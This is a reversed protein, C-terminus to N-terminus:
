GMQGLLLELAVLPAGTGVFVGIATQPAGMCWLRNLLGMRPLAERAYRERLENAAEIARELQRPSPPKTTFHQQLFAGVSRWTKAAVAAGILSGALADLGFPRLVSITQMLGAFVAIAAILNTGCRAHVRPMRAVVEPTLPEGREMAHVVQHEAGHNGTIPSLRLIVLFLAASLAQLGLWAAAATFGTPPSTRLWLELTGSGFARDAGWCGAGVLMHAAAIMLGLAIGGYVLGMSSVGARVGGATLYVGFPTAMGGAGLPSEVVDHPIVLDHWRVMGMLGGSGDAVFVTDAGSRELMRWVMEVSATVPVVNTPAEVHPHLPENLAADADGHMLRARVRDASVVGLLRGRMDVVPLATMRTEGMIRVARGLTEFPQMAPAPRILTALSLSRTPVPNTWRNM